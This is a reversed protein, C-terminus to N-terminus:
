RALDNRLFLVLDVGPRLTYSNVRRYANGYVAQFQAEQKTSCIVIEENAASISGSAFGIAKYDNLYWPLPWYDESLVNIRTAENTGARKAILNIEKVLGLFERRTHAYVYVYKDDDYHYFNLSIMQVTCVVVAITALLIAFARERTEGFFRYIEGVGYGGIIALPVIFNIDLWPTKYPVLSYAAVIGFAWLAFFVASRSRARWFAMFIGLAGLLLIPSEELALWKVYTYWEHIHDKKGTKTWVKFTLISDMVGKPNTFFSSYFLVNVFVFVALAILALRAVHPLENFRTLAEPLFGREENGTGNRVRAKSKGGAGAIGWVTERMWVWVPASVLAILLVGASIMATEKTAFLMAASATGLLLYSSRLGESRWLEVVVLAILILLTVLVFPLKQAFYTPFYNTFLSLSVLALAGLLASIGSAWSAYEPPPSDYFKLAAYIIGLTFFVFLTEHIFYRSMYVAGPSVALLAAAVLAGIAGIYRRLGLILWITALGFLVPVLRIAYTTLGFLFTLPLALFYLTPGHYNEPDYHYVGDRFLRTLFFGNVGEDHHLPVLDLHYVRLVAAVVM